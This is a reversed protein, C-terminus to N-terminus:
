EEAPSFEETRVWGHQLAYIAAQTRGEVRLKGMISTMHNKVTQHSIKLTYAIQKNSLGHSVARLIEMERSSLPSDSESASYSPAAQTVLWAQLSQATYSQKGIVFAGRCVARMVDVLSDPAIDKPCFAAAGTRMAYVVQTNDHHATLLIVATRNAPDSKLQAVVQLGNMQPLNIDLLLLDPRQERAMRLGEEGTGAEGIVKFEPEMEILKRLGNRLLPHDDVILVTINPSSSFRSDARDSPTQMSM